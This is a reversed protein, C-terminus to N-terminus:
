SQRNTGTAAAVADELDKDFKLPKIGTRPLQYDPEPTKRLDEITEYQSSVLGNLRGIEEHARLLRELLNENLEDEDM